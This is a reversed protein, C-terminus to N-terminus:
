RRATEAVAGLIVPSQSCADPGLAVIQQGSAMRLSQPRANAPNRLQLLCGDVEKPLLQGLTGLAAVDAFAVPVESRFVDAEAWRQAHDIPELEIAPESHEIWEFLQRKQREFASTEPRWFDALRDPRRTRPLDSSV